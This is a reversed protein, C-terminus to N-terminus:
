GVREVTRMEDVTAQDPRDLVDAVVRLARTAHDHELVWRRSSTHAIPRLGKCRLLEVTWRRTVNAQGRLSPENMVLWRTAAASLERREWPPRALLCMGGGAEAALQLRRTAALDFGSGDAIVAAATGGLSRLALDTAWLREASRNARVFLCQNLRLHGNDREAASELAVPYPWVAEGIFVVRKQGTEPATAARRAMEILLGLPPSWAELGARGRPREDEGTANLTGLWEHVKGPQLVSGFTVEDITSPDFM